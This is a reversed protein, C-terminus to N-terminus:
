ESEKTIYRRVAHISFEFMSNKNEKETSETTPNVQQICM